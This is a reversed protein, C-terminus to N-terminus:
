KFHYLCVIPNGDNEAYNVLKGLKQLTLEAEKTSKSKLYDVLEVVVDVTVYGALCSDTAGSLFVQCETLDDKFYGSYLVQKEKDFLIDVPKGDVKTQIYFYKGNEWCSNFGYVKQNKEVFDDVHSMPSMDEPYEVQPNKKGFDILYKVSVGDSSVSYIMNSLPHFFLVEGDPLRSFFRAQQYIPIKRGAFSRYGPIYRSTEGTSLNSVALLQPDEEVNDTFVALSRDKLFLFDFGDMEMDSVGLLKGDLSFRMMRKPYTFLCVTSDTELVDFGRISLYEQAGPGQKNIICRGKGQRDFVFLQKDQDQVFFHGLAFKMQRIKTILFDGTTDLPHIEVDSFLDSYKQSLESSQEYFLTTEADIKGEVDKTKPVCSVVSLLLLLLFYRIGTEMRGM